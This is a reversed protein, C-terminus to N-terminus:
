RRFSQIPPANAPIITDAAKKNQGRDTIINKIDLGYSKARTTYGADVIRQEAKVEEFLGDITKNLNTIQTPTLITKGSQLTNAVNTARDFWGSSKLAMALETERVVSQPDLIKMFATGASLGATPNTAADKLAAKAKDIAIKTEIFGKSESVYQKNLEIETKQLDAPNPGLVTRQAPQTVTQSAGSTPRGQLNAIERDLAPDLRGLFVQNEREKLLIALKDNDMVKQLAQPVRAGAIAQPIQMASASSPAIGPTVNLQLPPTGAPAASPATPIAAPAAPAAPAVGGAFGQPEVPAMLTSISQSIGLWPNVAVGRNTDFKWGQQALTELHNRRAANIQEITNPSVGIQTNVPVGIIQGMGGRQTERSVNGLNTTTTTVKLLLDTLEKGTLNANEAQWQRLGDPTSIQKIDDELAQEYPKFRSAIKGLLPHSYFAKLHSTLSPVDTVRIANRGFPILESDVAERAQKAIDGKTKEIDQTRKDEESRAKLFEPIKSAGAGGALNSTLLDYNIKGDVISGKLAANVANQSADSRQASALTYKSLENQNMAGQMQMAQLMNATQQKQAEQPIAAIRAGLNTDFAGFNFSEM